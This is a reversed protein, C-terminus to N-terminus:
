SSPSARPGPPSPARRRSERPPRRRPIRPATVRYAVMAPTPEASGGRSTGLLQNSVKTSVLSSHIRSRVPMSARCKASSPVWVDSRATSAARAAISAAPTEGSCSSMIMTAVIVPSVTKGAVATHTCSFSPMLQGDNSM